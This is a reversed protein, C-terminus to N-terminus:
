SCATTPWRVLKAGALDSAELTTESADFAIIVRPPRAPDVSADATAHPLGRTEAIRVSLAGVPVASSAPTGSTANDDIAASNAALSEGSARLTENSSRASSPRSFRGFKFGFKESDSNAGAPGP